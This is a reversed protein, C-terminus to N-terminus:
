ASRRLPSSTSTTSSSSASFLASSDIRLAPGGSLARTYIIMAELVALAGCLLLIIV